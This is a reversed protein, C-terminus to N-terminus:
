LGAGLDRGSLEGVHVDIQDHGPDSLVGADEISGRHDIGGASSETGLDAPIENGGPLGTRPIRNHVRQSAEM